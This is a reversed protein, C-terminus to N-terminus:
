SFGRGLPTGLLPPETSPAPASGLGRPGSDAASCSRGAGCQGVSTTAPLLHPVASAAGVGPRPGLEPARGALAGPHQRHAPRRPDSFPAATSSASGDSSLLPLSQSPSLSHHSRHSQPPSLLTPPTILRGRRRGRQGLRAVAECAHGRRALSALFQRNPLKRRALSLGAKLKTRAMFRMCGLWGFLGCVGGWRCQEWRERKAESGRGRREESPKAEGM